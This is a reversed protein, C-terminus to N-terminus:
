FTYGIKLTECWRASGDIYLLDFGHTCVAGAEAYLGWRTNYRVSAGATVRPATLYENQLDYYATLHHPHEGAEIEQDAVRSKETRNGSAYEAGARVDFRGLRVMGSAYVRCRLISQAYLYPYMQSSLRDLSAVEAGGRFEGKAGTWEYEPNVSLTEREFIRNSGYIKTTTVGNSTEKGLVNEDNAQRSWAVTLRLFRLNGGRGFRYAARATLRHAPFEFWLTQKEGVKGTGHLYEVDAYFARWAGQVAIGQVTERVPLGNIGSESLHTGSGSWVEYAGYMLGKDLFAYYSAETEGIEEASIRESNKGYVYTLGVAGGGAHYMVGPTVTMDLRYNTHRLDKRKAYNQSTFEIGAGIRWRPAIDAAIAGTFAYTQLDKRGPTFELIDIPYFGPRIFMSGSMNRGSTHDFAFSGAMSIKELHTITKAVAGASWAESAESFDRLGGRTDRGYLEAYSVTLSDTRLGAANRGANWFNRREIREFPQAAAGSAAFLVLCAIATNRFKNM